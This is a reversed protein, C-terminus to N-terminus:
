SARQHIIQDLVEESNESIWRIRDLAGNVSDEVREIQGETVGPLAKFSEIIQEADMRGYTDAFDQVMRRLSEETVNNNLVLGGRVYNLWAKTFGYQMFWNFSQLADGETYPEDFAFGHDIPLVTGESGDPPSALIANGPNRDGNLVAFDWLVMKTISNGYIDGIDEYFAERADVQGAEDLGRIDNQLASEEIGADTTSWDSPILYGAHQSIVTGPQHANADDFPDGTDPPTTGDWTPNYGFVSRPIKLLREDDGLISSV